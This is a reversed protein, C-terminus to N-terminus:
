SLVFNPVFFNCDIVVLTLAKTRIIVLLSTRGNGGVEDARAYSTPPKESTRSRVIYGSLRIVSFTM